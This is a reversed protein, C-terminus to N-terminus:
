YRALKLPGSKVFIRWIGAFGWYLDLRDQYSRWFYMLEGVAVGDLKQMKRNPNWFDLSLSINFIPFNM